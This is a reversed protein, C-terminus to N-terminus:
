PEPFVGAPCTQDQGLGVMPGARTDGTGWPGIRGTQEIDPTGRGREATGLGGWAPFSRGKHVSGVPHDGDRPGADVDRAPHLCSLISVSDGQGAKAREQLTTSGMTSGHQNVGARPAVGVAVAATAVRTKPSALPAAHKSGLPTAWCQGGARPVDGLLTDAAWHSWPAPLVQGAGWVQSLAGREKHEDEGFEARPWPRRCMLATVPSLLSLGPSGASM